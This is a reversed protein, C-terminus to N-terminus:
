TASIRSSWIWVMSTRIRFAWAATSLFMDKGYEYITLNKGIEVLGALRIIKLKSAM